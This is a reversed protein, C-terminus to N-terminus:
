KGNKLGVLVMIKERYEDYLTMSDEM